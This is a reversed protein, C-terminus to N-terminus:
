KGKVAESKHSVQEVLALLLQREAAWVKGLLLVRVASRIVVGIVPLNAGPVMDPKTRMVDYAELQARLESFDDPPTEAPALRQMLRAELDDVLAQLKDQQEAATEKNVREELQAELDDV